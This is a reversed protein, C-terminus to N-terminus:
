TSQPRTNWPWADMTVMEAVYDHDVPMGDYRCETTTDTLTLGAQTNAARLAGADGETPPPAHPIPHGRPTIFTREGDRDEIRYGGEHLLRHHFWCVRVLNDRDTPGHHVWHRIHHNHRAARGCGPFGCCSQMAELARRLRKNIQRTSRGADVPRGDRHIMTVLDADCAARRATEPAIGPGDAIECRGDTSEGSLVDADAHIVM